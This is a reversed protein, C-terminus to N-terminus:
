HGFLETFLEANGGRRKMMATWDPNYFNLPRPSPAPEDPFRPIEIAPNAPALGIKTVWATQGEETLSWALFLKAANPHPANAPIAQFNPIALGPSPVTWALPAGRAKQTAFTSTLGVLALDFEGAVLREVLPNIGDFVTPKLRALRKVFDDGYTTRFFDLPLQASGGARPNVVAADESFPASPLQDWNKLNDVWLKQEANLGETNWGVGIEELAIAYWYGPRQWQAPVRGANPPAWKTLMGKEALADGFSPSANMFIDAPSSGARFESSFREYLTGGTGVFTNIAICPFRERFRDLVFRANNRFITIYITLKGESCADRVIEQPLDPLLATASKSAVDMEACAPKLGFGFLSLALLGALNMM